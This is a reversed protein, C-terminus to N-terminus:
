NQITFLIQKSRFAIFSVHNFQIISSSVTEDNEPVTSLTRVQLSGPGEFASNQCDSGSFGHGNSTGQEDAEHMVQDLIIITKV